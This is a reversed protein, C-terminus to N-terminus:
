LIGLSFSIDFLIKETLIICRNFLCAFTLALTFNRKSDIICDIFDLLATPHFKIKIVTYHQQYCNSTAPSQLPNQPNPLRDNENNGDDSTASHCKRHQQVSKQVIRSPHSNNSFFCTELQLQKEFSWYM